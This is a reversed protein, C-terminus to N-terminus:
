PSSYLCSYLTNPGNELDTVVDKMIASQDMKDVNVEMGVGKDNLEQKAQMLLDYYYKLDKEAKVLDPTGDNRAWRKAKKFVSVRMRTHTDNHSLLYNRGRKIYDTIEGSSISWGHDFGGNALYTQENWDKRFTSHNGPLIVVDDGLQDNYTTSTISQPPQVLVNLMCIYFDGNEVQGGQWAAQFIGTALWTAVADGTIQEPSKPDSGERSSDQDPGMGGDGTSRQVVSSFERTVPSLVRANSIINESNNDQPYIALGGNQQVVHALEHALIKKGSPTGPSYEGAGFVVNNGLTFARADISQALSAARTDSHVRVNSFDAGIRPEFFSRAPGPLPQGSGQLSQIGTSITPTVEPTQGGTTKAQILEKDEACSACVRQVTKGRPITRNALSSEGVSSSVRTDPMRMVQEAVRDAEQEFADGPTSVRLKEQVGESRGTHLISRVKSSQKTTTQRAVSRTPQSSRGADTRLAVSGM